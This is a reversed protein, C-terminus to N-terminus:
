LDSRRKELRARFLNETFGGEKIFAEKLAQLQKDLLYNAQHILCILVNAAEEPDALYSQYTKYASSTLESVAQQYTTDSRYCLARIKRASPNDKDWLLLSRQRLFDEYDILM